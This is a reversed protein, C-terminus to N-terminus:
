VRLCGDAMPVIRMRCCRGSCRASSALESPLLGHIRKAPDDPLRALVEAPRAQPDIDNLKATEGQDGGGVTWGGLM